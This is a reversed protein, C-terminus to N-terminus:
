VERKYAAITVQKEVIVKILGVMISILTLVQSIVAVCNQKAKVIQLLAKFSKLYSQGFSHSTGFM